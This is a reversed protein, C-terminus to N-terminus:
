PRALGARMAGDHEASIAANLFPELESQKVCVDKSLETLSVGLSQSYALLCLRKAVDDISTVISKAQPTLQGNATCGSILLCV